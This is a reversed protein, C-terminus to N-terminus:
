EMRFSPQNGVTAQQEKQDLNSNQDTLKASTGYCYEITLTLESGELVEFTPNITISSSAVYEVINSSPIIGASSVTMSAQYVGSSITGNVELDLPCNGEFNTVSYNCGAAIPKPDFFDM